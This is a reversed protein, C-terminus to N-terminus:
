QTIKGMLAKLRRGIASPDRDYSERLKLIEDEINKMKKTHNAAIAIQTEL